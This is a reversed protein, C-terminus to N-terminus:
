RDSAVVFEGCLAIPSLDECGATSSSSSNAFQVGLIM